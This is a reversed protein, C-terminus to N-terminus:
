HTEKKYMYIHISLNKRKKYAKLQWHTHAQLCRIYAYPTDTCM